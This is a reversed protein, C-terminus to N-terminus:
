LHIQKLNLLLMRIMVSSKVFVVDSIELSNYADNVKQLYMVLKKETTCTAKTLVDSFSQSDPVM